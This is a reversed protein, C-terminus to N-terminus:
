VDFLLKVLSSVTSTFANVFGTGAWVSCIEGYMPSNLVYDWGLALFLWQVQYSSPSFSFTKQLFTTGSFDALRWYSFIYYLINLCNM